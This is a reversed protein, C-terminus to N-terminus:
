LFLTFQFCLPSTFFCSLFPLTFSFLSSLSSVLTSCLYAHYPFPTCPLNLLLPSLFSPLFYLVCSVFVFVSSYFMLSSFLSLPQVCPLFLAFLFTSVLVSSLLFVSTYIRFFPSFSFSILLPFHSSFQFLSSASVGQPADTIHIGEPM